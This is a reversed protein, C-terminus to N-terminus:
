QVKILTEDIEKVQGTAVTIYDQWPMYGDKEIRIEHEMPLVHVSVPTTGVDQYDILVRAGPPSSRIRFGTVERRAAKKHGQLRTLDAQFCGAARLQSDFATQSYFGLVEGVLEEDGKYIQEAAQALDRDPNKCEVAREIDVKMRLRVQDERAREAAAKERAGRWSALGYLVAAAALVGFFVAFFTKM